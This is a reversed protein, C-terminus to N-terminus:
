KLVGKGAVDETVNWVAVVGLLAASFGLIAEQQEGTIHVGFARLLVIAANVTGAQLATRLVRSVTDFSVRGM